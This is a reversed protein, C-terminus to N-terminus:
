VQSMMLYHNKLNIKDIVWGPFPHDREILDKFTTKVKLVLYQPQTYLFEFQQIQELTLLNDKQKTIDEMRNFGKLWAIWEDEDCHIQRLIKEYEQQRTRKPAIRIPKTIEQTEELSEKIRRKEHESLLSQYPILSLRSNLAVQLAEEARSVIEEPNRGDQPFNAIGASIHANLHHRMMPIIQNAFGQSFALDREPLILGIREGIFPIDIDARVVDLIINAM